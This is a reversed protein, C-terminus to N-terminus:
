ADFVPVCDHGCANLDAGPAPRHLLAKRPTVRVQDGDVAGEGDVILSYGGAEYPPWLVTVLGHADVNQGTKRGAPGILRDGDWAVPINVAHPRGEPSVTLLFPTFGYREVEERLKDLGVAVSVVL